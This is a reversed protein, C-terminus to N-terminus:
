MKWTTVVLRCQRYMGDIPDFNCAFGNAPAKLLQKM